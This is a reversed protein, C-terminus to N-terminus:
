VVVEIDKVVGADTDIKRSVSSAIEIGDIIEVQEQREDEKSQLEEWTPYDTYGKARDECPGYFTDRDYKNLPRDQKLREVLDPNSIFYRGMLLADCQGSEVVDWCNTDNWGGASFFPTDGMIERLFSLNLTAPDLGWSRLVSDESDTSLIQEFRPEILSIYSMGPVRRKLERCLHSWTEVREGGRAENFLGFPSLRMAVNEAGITSALAEMLEAVFRCRKEPSGGYEDTRKNVNSLLFQEPLYGNGGHVEIGDFGADIAMRAATCYDSITAQIHAKSLEIPPYDAYKVQKTHGPPIRRVLANPDDWPVASSAVTPMGTFASITTRGAHWLQAYIYGGKAHVAHTVTQWGTLHSPYFLGPVVPSGNSELSPAIGESILLGGKTARQAYYEAVLDDAYWIRNVHSLTSEQLPVCRNRTLPALIIRHSLTIKGSAITLPTFLKSNSSRTTAM